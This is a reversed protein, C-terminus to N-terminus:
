RQIGTLTIRGIADDLTKKQDDSIGNSSMMVTKAAWRDAALPVVTMKVTLVGNKTKMKGFFAQGKFESIEDFSEREFRDIGADKGIASAVDVLPHNAYTQDHLITLYVVAWRETPMVQLGNYDDAKTQWGPLVDILFSNAGGQPFKVLEAQAPAATWLPGLLCVLALIHRRM